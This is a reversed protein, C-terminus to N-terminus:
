VFKDILFVGMTIPIYFFSFFMLILASKKSNAVYLRYSLAIYMLSVVLFVGLSMYGSIGFYLCLGFVPLLFLSYLFAQFGTAQTPLSGIGPTIKFGARIYDQHGLWSIAWFHPFQWFFQIAFLCLGLTSLYGQASVTGILVPLAGPVAGIPVAIPSVRKMPTYVFAYLLLSVSGLVASWLNITALLILGFVSMLGAMLIATSETMRGTPLPRNATRTMLSDQSKELVQNLANAAATILFGGLLFTFLGSVPSQNKPLAIWFALLSSFVVTSSLRFKILQLFDAIDTLWQKKEGNLAGSQLNM